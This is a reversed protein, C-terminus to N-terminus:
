TNWAVAGLCIVHKQKDVERQACMLQRICDVVMLDADSQTSYQHAHQQIRM